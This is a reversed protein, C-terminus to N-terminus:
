KAAAPDACEPAASVEQLSDYFSLPNVKLTKKEM